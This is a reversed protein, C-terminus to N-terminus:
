ATVTVNRTATKTPDSVSTATIVASGIAVGTVLGTSSVTAKAPDSSSWTVAQSAGSPLVTATLQSTAAVAISVTAPAISVSDVAVFPARTITPPTRRASVTLEVEIVDTAAGDPWDGNVEMEPLTITYRGDGNEITFSVAIADGTQQKIWLEYSAASWAVTISGTASFTTPIVNGVFAGNNICRQTQVNNDFTLDMASICTGNEPTAEVGDLTLSTFNKFNFRKANAEPAASSFYPTADVKGEWGIATMNTAVTIDDDTGFTFAMSAVQAGRAISSVLVDSAFSAVSYTIREDGVTLVDSAWRKGFCSELFDDIAGAYRWKQGIEGAVDITTATTGQSMRTQSIENNEATNQTPGLGYSTRILEKWGTAPTVGQTVEEVYATRNKAGSSM